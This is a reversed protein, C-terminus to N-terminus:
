QPPPKVQAQKAEAVKEQALPTDNLKQAASYEIVAGEYDMEAMAEDGLQMRHLYNNQEKGMAYLLENLRTVAQVNSPDVTLARHYKKIAEDPQQEGAWDLYIACLKERTAVDAPNLKHVQEFKAAAESYKKERLLQNGEEALNQVASLDQSAGVNARAAAPVQAIAKKPSEGIWGFSPSNIDPIEQAQSALM